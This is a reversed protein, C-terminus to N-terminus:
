NIIKMMSQFKQIDELNQKVEDILHNIQEIIPLGYQYCNNPTTKTWYYFMLNLDNVYDHIDFIQNDDDSMLQNEKIPIDKFCSDLYAIFPINSLISDEDSPQYFMAFSDRKDIKIKEASPIIGYIKSFITWFLEFYLIDYGVKRDGFALKHILYIKDVWQIKKRIEIEKFMTDFFERLSLEKPIKNEDFLTLYNSFREQLAQEDEIAGIDLCLEFHIMKQLYASADTKDGYIRKVTYELQTRDTAIIIAINEMGEFLHHLRELVRVMYEPLCRDLEDVVIVLTKDKIIEKILKRLEDLAKSLSSYPNCKNKESNNDLLQLLIKSVDIGCQAQLFQGGTKIAWEGLKKGTEKIEQKTYHSKGKETNNELEDQMATVLAILPEAYYDYKWCDYRIHYFSNENEEKIRNALMNLVFSKGSGWKGNLSFTMSQKNVSIGHLVEIIREVIPSRNLIDLENM